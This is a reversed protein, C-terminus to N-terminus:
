DRSDADFLSREEVTKQFKEMEEKSISATMSNLSEVFHARGIIITDNDDKSDLFHQRVAKIKARKILEVVDACSFGTTNEGVIDEIEKREHIKVKDSKM